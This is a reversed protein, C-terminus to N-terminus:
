STLEQRLLAFRSPGNETPAMPTDMSDVLEIPIEDLFRSRDNEQLQNMMRRRRAHSLYLREKARTIAVYALRREEELEGGDLCRRDPFVGEEMGVVFVNPFELGKSAHITMLLVRSGDGEADDGLMVLSSMELLDEISPFDAAIARLQEVSQARYDEEEQDTAAALLQAMYAGDALVADIASAPGSAVDAAKIRDLLILFEDLGQLALRPMEDIDLRRGLAESLPMGHTRAFARLKKISGDGVSRRPVNVCRRFSLEDDPNVAMKLYAILDKIEKREFFPTGGVTKCAIQRRVVEGEIPRALAKARCLVAIDGPKCGRSVLTAIEDAVWEAEQVDDGAEYIAIPNGNGARTWLNKDPRAENRSIVANAAELITGTSRYNQELKITTAGPFAKDFNLINGIEAARFGYISQDGDGVCCLNRHRAVLQEVLVSQARNTDQYEDVLVYDYQDQYHKLVDDHETLLTVMHVLLDDFDVSNALRLRAQYEDYIRSHATNRPDRQGLDSSGMEKPGVLGNKARSIAAKSGGVSVEKHDFGVDDTIDRLLRKADDEPFITFNRKLGVRQAYPRLMRVCASHFTSVAMKSVMSGLSSGLRAKMERAAKNTFTIAMIREHPVNRATILHGIRNTLVRTKGSGAGAVVLLPGDGFVVAERQSPNLGELFRKPDLAPRTGEPARSM